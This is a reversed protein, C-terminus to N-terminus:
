GLTMLGFTPLKHPFSHSHNFITTKTNANLTLLTFYDHPITIYKNDRTRTMLLRFFPAVAAGSVTTKKFTPEVSSFRNKSFMRIYNWKYVHMRIYNWKYVQMHIYNWKYVHMRIYNWKYVHMCMYHCKYVHMRLHYMCMCCTCTCTFITLM